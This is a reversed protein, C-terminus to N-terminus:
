LGIHQKAATKLALKTARGGKQGRCEQEGLGALSRGEVAVRVTGVPGAKLAYEALANWTESSWGSARDQVRKVQPPRFRGAGPWSVDESASKLTM